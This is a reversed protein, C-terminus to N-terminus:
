PAIQFIVGCSAQGCNATGGEAATGYMNGSRDFVINSRPYGGDAGGTFDHLSSYNWGGGSPTLKFVSGYYYTGDAHTTGYLSGASDLVLNAVPGPAFQGTAGSFSYLTASNWGGGSPTLEFVTGGGGAGGSGAAGYLNGSADFILGAYPNGGDSGGTFSYIVHEVWGSGSPTLEFITGANYAGGYVTTGYLNGAHDFTVGAWPHTGDLGTFAYLVSESWSGGSPTLKYVVGCGGSCAQAGGNYTTGYISGASDFVVDGSYPNAGDSGGSFRYLVQENWLTLPTAPPHPQPQLSFVTGCGTHYYTQCPGEGGFGTTGYLAGSPGFIVRAYPVSGDSGGPFLYLPSLLWGGSHHSLKYVTGTGADGEFTPGYLNGASDITLGASPEAGDLGGGFNHIVTYTQGWAAPIASVLVLSCGAVVLRLHLFLLRRCQGSNPM